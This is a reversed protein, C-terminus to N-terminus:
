VNYWFKAFDFLGLISNYHNLSQFNPASGVQCQLILPNRDSSAEASIYHLL